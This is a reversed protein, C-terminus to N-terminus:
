TFMRCLLHDGGKRSISPQVDSTLFWLDSTVHCIYCTLLWLHRTVHWMHCKINSMNHIVHWIDLRLSRMDCTVLWLDCTVKLHLAVHRSLRSGQTSPSWGPGPLHQVLWDRVDVQVVTSPHDNLDDLIPPLYTLQGRLIWTPLHTHTTLYSPLVAAGFVM